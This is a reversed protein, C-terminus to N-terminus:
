VLKYCINLNCKPCIEKNKIWQKLCNKHFCHFCPLFYVDNGSKMDDLCIVCPNEINNNKLITSYIKGLGEKPNLQINGGITKFNNIKYILFDCYIKSNGGIIKFNNINTNIYINHKGGIIKIEEIKDSEMNQFPYIYILSEGGTISLKNIPARVVLKINGGIFKLEEIFSNVRIIKQGGIFEIFKAKGLIKLNNIGGICKKEKVYETIKIENEEEENIQIDNM